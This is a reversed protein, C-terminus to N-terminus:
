IINHHIKIVELFRRAYKKQGVPNLHITDRYDSPLLERRMDIYKVDMTELLHRLSKGDQNPGSGIESVTPHLFVAFHAGSTKLLAILNRVDRDGKTVVESVDQSPVELPSLWSPLYRPLYRTLAEKVAFSPRVQPFDEGLDKRFTPVDHLDHSSLVLLIHDAGFTGFRNLYAAMNAPGWSGASVNGVWSGATLSRRLIESALDSQDTQAGGNVVSDGLVLVIDGDVNGRPPTLSRMSYENYVIANGFRQYIGPKFMYEIQPDRITLPPDGLGLVVRAFIETAM